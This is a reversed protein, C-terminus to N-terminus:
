TYTKLVRAYNLSYSRYVCMMQVTENRCEYVHKFLSRCFAKIIERKFVLIYM